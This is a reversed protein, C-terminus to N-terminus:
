IKLFLAYLDEDKLEVTISRPSNEFNKCLEGVILSDNGDVEIASSTM